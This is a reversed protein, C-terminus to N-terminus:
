YKPDCLVHLCVWRRRPWWISRPKQAWIIKKRENIHFAEGWYLISHWLGGSIWGSDIYQRFRSPLRVLSCSLPPSYSFNERTDNEDIWESKSLWGFWDKVMLKWGRWDEANLGNKYKTEENEKKEWDFINRLKNMRAGTACGRYGADIDIIHFTLWFFFECFFRLFLYKSHNETTVISM